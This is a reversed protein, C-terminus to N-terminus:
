PAPTIKRICNNTFGAFYIENNSARSFGFISGFTAVNSLGNNSGFAGTGAYTSTTGNSVVKRIVNNDSVLLEDNPTLFIGHPHKFRSVSADGDVYGGNGLGTLGTGSLTTVTGDPAIKRIRHDYNGGIYVNDNSDIALDQPNQFRAAAGVADVYGLTGCLGALTTVDANPAIKRICHNSYDVVILNGQSDFELNRPHNFRAAAGNGDVIGSFGCNGAFSTVNGGSVRRICDNNYDGVYLDGNPAITVGMPTSFRATTIANGDTNGAVGTGAFTSVNGGSILRIRHNMRDAVYIDGNSAVAVDSPQNFQSVGVPGNTFGAGNCGAVTSITPLGLVNLNGNNSTQGGATVTITQTGLPAGAPVSLTLTNTSSSTVVAPIGGILVNNNGPVPDFGDGHITFLETLTAQSHSISTMVPPLVIPNGATGSNLTVTGDNAISATTNFSVGGNLGPITATVTWNGPPMNNITNQGAGAAISAISSAPDNASLNIATNFLQNQPDRVVITPSANITWDTPINTPPPLANNQMIFNAIAEPNLRSPHMQYTNGDPSNAGFIIQDLFQQLTNLDLNNLMDPASDLIRELTLGLPLYRWKLVVTVMGPTPPSSYYGILLAGPIITKNADYAQAFVIRNTGRPINQVSLTATPNNAVDVYGKKNMIRDNIGWGRVWCRLYNIQNPDLAQTKLSSHRHPLRITFQINDNIQTSQLRGSSQTTLPSHLTIEAQLTPPQPRSSLIAESCSISLILLLLAVSRFIFM